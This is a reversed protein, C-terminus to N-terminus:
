LALDVDLLMTMEETTFGDSMGLRSFQNQITLEYLNRIFRANGFFDDRPGDSKTLESVLRSILSPAARFDSKGAMSIFIQVLEETEYHPFKFYRSFRSELGPNSKIFSQMREEYGAVIVVLRGRHDEMFKLITDIAEQGYDDNSKLTYAEDIFLVGDLARELVSTTKIATQGVYGAVLQSRDTEVLHGKKLLGLECLLKSYLRAVTTKGTGPPGLFVSHLAVPVRDLGRSERAKNVQVFNVLRQVDVKIERLGILGQLETMTDSSKAEGSESTEDGDSHELGLKLATEFENEASMESPSLFDDAKTLLRFYKRLESSIRSVASDQASGNPILKTVLRLSSVKKSSARQSRMLDRYDSRTQEDLETWLEVLKLPAFKVGSTLSLQWVLGLMFEPSDDEYNQQRLIKDLIFHGDNKLASVFQEYDSVPLSQTAYRKMEEAIAWVQRSKVILITQQSLTM